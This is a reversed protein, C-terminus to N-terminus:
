SSSMVNVDLAERITRLYRVADEDSWAHISFADKTVAEGGFCGLLDVGTASWDINIVRKRWGIKIKGVPTRAMFWPGNYDDSGYENPVAELQCWEYGALRFLLRFEQEAQAATIAALCVPHYYVFATAATEDGEQIVYDDDVEGHRGVWGRANVQLSPFDPDPSLNIYHDNRIKLESSLVLKADQRAQLEAKAQAYTQGMWPELSITKDSSRVLCEHADAMSWARGCGACSLNAPALTSGGMLSWCFFLEEASNAAVFSHFEQDTLVDPIHPFYEKPIVEIRGDGKMIGLNGCSDLWYRGLVCFEGLRERRDYGAIRRERLLEHFAALSGLSLSIGLKTDHLHM